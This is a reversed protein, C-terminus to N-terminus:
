RLVGSVVALHPLFLSFPRGLSKKTLRIDSFNLLSSLPRNVHLHTSWIPSTVRRDMYDRMKIHDRKCTLHPLGGWTVEGVQPGGGEHLCARLFSSPLLLSFQLFAKPKSCCFLLKARADRKKTWKTAVTARSRHSVEQNWTKHLVHICSLNEEEKKTFKCTFLTM